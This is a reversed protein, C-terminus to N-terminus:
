FDFGIALLKAEQEDTIPSPKKPPKTLLQDETNAHVHHLTAGGHQLGVLPDQIGFSDVHDNNAQIERSIKQRKRKRQM